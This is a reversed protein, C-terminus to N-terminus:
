TPDPPSGGLVPVIPKWGDAVRSVTERLLPESIDRGGPSIVRYGQAILNYLFQACIDEADSRLAFSRM